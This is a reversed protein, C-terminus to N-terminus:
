RLINPEINLYADEANPGLARLSKQHEKTFSAVRIDQASLHSPDSTM